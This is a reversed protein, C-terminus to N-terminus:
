RNIDEARPASMPQAELKPYPNERLLERLVQIGRDLQADGGNFTAFPLNDVEIDPTVGFGELIWRGDMAHQPTEAVRAVGRDALSNRGSLWVGAGTTQKGVLPGLNLAKVGASFTEGDSYTLQDTLVVLQGMFTQQMNTYGEGLRPQWFSWARRLLKEIIWSDINGGRNRRVDIILGEKQYNAYFERAFSAIDGGGMAYLHLYGFKGDSAETVKDRNNEVWTEYRLRHDRGTSVPIVVTQHTESDRAINLLVQKGTQGRLATILEGLHSVSRGNIHTIVDGVAADVGPASLPAAQDPLDADVRYITDIRLGNAAMSFQGGLSAASARESPSSYEGGRVQSHLVNLESLLQSFVDDLEHRDTLRDLLPEYRERMEVWDVGRMNSDFLFDRHMLWADRFMQRWEETPSFALQWDSTSVKANGLNSPATANANVIYMNSAGNQSFFLRKGDHSLQYGSVNTAFTETKVDTQSFAISHLTPPSSWDFSRTQVYLREDNASLNYYNDASLPVQWLREPAGALDINQEKAAENDCNAVEQPPAFPFCADPKLAVAYILSRNNFMPGLNRDGWPSSPTARFNRDSLFYLWNGDRSFAPSGSEYKDSTIVQSEQTTLSYVWVERRSDDQGNRAFALLESDANWVMDAIGYHGAAGENIRQNEGSELNLLWLDGNKDDHALWKGDPSQSLNWRFTTGNETLQEAGESGDAPFRWIENEGSHDNLAYVWKGDLSLLANRSRSEAPTAIQVLRRPGTNAVAIQSRATIVVQDNSDFRASTIYSLPNELWREQRATFDSTLTIPLTRSNGSAIDLMHLDAGRQYVINGDDLSASWIQWDDYDTHQRFDRGATTMSWINPTGDADSIFYIRGEHYMPRKVSGEHSGTLLTAERNSGLNYRWIEGKAGGRYVRANDGTAQLGFRTFYVEQGNDNTAGEIADVLPLTTTELSEPNVTRLVWQNAPGVVNDTSYMVEGQPTWGQVRVRSNEFSVRKPVGGAIPMVYVEAAGEYNAVYAVYEGNHSIAAGIEETAHTTLRKTGSATSHWLDGEATFVIQDQHIAPARYYGQEAHAAAGATLLAATILGLSFTHMKM